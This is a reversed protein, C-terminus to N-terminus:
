TASFTASLPRLRVERFISNLTVQNEPIWQLGSIMEIDM